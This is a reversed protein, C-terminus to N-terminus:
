DGRRMDSAWGAASTLAGTANPNSAVLVGNRYLKWVGGEYVGALHVWRSVDTSPIPSTVGHTTGDYSFIEYNGGNMRLGTAVESTVM